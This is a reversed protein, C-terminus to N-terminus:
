SFKKCSFPEILKGDKLWHGWPGGEWLEPACKPCDCLPKLKCPYDAKSFGNKRWDDSWGLWEEPACRPCDCLPEDTLEELLNLVQKLAEKATHLKAPDPRLVGRM